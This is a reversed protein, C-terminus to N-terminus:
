FWYITSERHDYFNTIHTKKMLLPTLCVRATREVFNESNKYKLRGALIDNVTSTIEKADLSIGQGDRKTDYYLLNKCFLYAPCETYNRFFFVRESSSRYYCCCNKICGQDWVYKEALKGM